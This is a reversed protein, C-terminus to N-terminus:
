FCHSYFHSRGQEVAPEPEYPSLLTCVIRPNPPLMRYKREDLSDTDSGMIICNSFDISGVSLLLLIFIIAVNISISISIISPANCVHRTIRQWWLRVLSRVAYPSVCM